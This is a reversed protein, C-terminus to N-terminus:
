CHGVVTSDVCATPAAPAQRRRPSPSPPTTSCPSSARAIVAALVAALLWAPVAFRHVVATHIHATM